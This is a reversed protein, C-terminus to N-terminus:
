EAPAPRNRDLAAWVGSELAVGSCFRCELVGHAAVAIPVWDRAIATASGLRPTDCANLEVVAVRADTTVGKRGDMAIDTAPQRRKVYSVSDVCGTFVLESVVKDRELDVDNQIEHTFGSRM